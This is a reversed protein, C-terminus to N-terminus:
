STSPNVSSDPRRVSPPIESLQQASRYTGPHVEEFHSLSTVADRDYQVLLIEQIESELTEQVIPYKNDGPNDRRHTDPGDNVIKRQGRVVASSGLVGSPSESIRRYLAKNELYLRQYCNSKFGVTALVSGSPSQIIEILRGYDVRRNPRGWSM